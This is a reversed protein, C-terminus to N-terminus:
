IRQQSLDQRFEVNRVTEMCKPARRANCRAECEDRGVELRIVIGVGMHKGAGSKRRSRSFRGLRSCRFGWLCKGCKRADFMVCAAGPEDLVANRRRSPWATHTAARM